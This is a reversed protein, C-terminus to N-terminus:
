VVSESGPSLPMSFRNSYRRDMSSYQDEPPPTIIARLNLRDLHSSCINRSFVCPTSSMSSDSSHDALTSTHQKLEQYTKRWMVYLIVSVFSIAACMLIFAVTFSAMLKTILNMKALLDSEPKNETEGINSNASPLQTGREQSREFIVEDMFVVVSNQQGYVYELKVAVSKVNTVEPSHYVRVHYLSDGAGGIYTWNFEKVLNSFTVDRKESIHQRRSVTPTDDLFSITITRFFADEKAPAGSYQFWLFSTQKPPLNVFTNNAPYLTWELFM